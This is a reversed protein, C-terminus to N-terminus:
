GKAKRRRKVASARASQEAVASRLEKVRCLIAAIHGCEFMAALHGECFREKRVHTTLLKQLTALDTTRLAEPSDVLRVAEEQWETWDFKAVWGYRYLAQEFAALEPSRMFMPMTFHGDRHEPTSWEGATAGNAEFKPLFQLIADIRELLSFGAAEADIPELSEFPNTM